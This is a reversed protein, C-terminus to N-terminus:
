AAQEQPRAAAAKKRKAPTSRPGPSHNNVQKGIKRMQDALGEDVKNKWVVRCPCEPNPCAKLRALQQRRERVLANLRILEAELELTERPKSSM